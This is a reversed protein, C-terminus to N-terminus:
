MQFTKCCLISTNNNSDNRKWIILFSYESTSIHQYVHWNTWFENNCRWVITNNHRRQLKAYKGAHDCRCERTCLHMCMRPWCTWAMDYPSVPSNQKVKKIDEDEMVWCFCSLLLVKGGGNGENQRTHCWDAAESWTRVPCFSSLLQFHRLMTKSHKSHDQILACPSSQVLFVTAVESAPTSGRCAQINWKIQECDNSHITYSTKSSSFLHAKSGLVLGNRLIKNGWGCWM